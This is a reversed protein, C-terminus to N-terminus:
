PTRKQSCKVTLRLSELQSKLLELEESWNRSPASPIDHQFEFQRSETEIECNVDNRGVLSINTVEYGAAAIEKSKLSNNTLLAIRPKCKLYDLVITSIKYSTGGNLSRPDPPVGIASFASAMSLNFLQEAAYEARHRLSATATMEESYKKDEVGSGMGDQSSLYILIFGQENGSSHFGNEDFKYLSRLCLERQEANGEVSLSQNYDCALEQALVWQDYCNCRQSGFIFSPSCASESRVVIFDSHELNGVIGVEIIEIGHNPIFVSLGIHYTPFLRGSLRSRCFLSAGRSAVVLAQTHSHFFVSYIQSLDVSDDGFPLRPPMLSLARRFNHGKIEYIGKERFIIDSNELKQMVSQQIISYLSLM